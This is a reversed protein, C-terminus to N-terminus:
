AEAFPSSSPRRWSIEGDVVEADPQTRQPAPPEKAPRALFTWGLEPAPCIQIRSVVRDIPFPSTGHIAAREPYVPSERGSATATLYWGPAVLVTVLVRTARIGHKVFIL